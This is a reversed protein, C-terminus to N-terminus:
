LEAGYDMESLHKEQLGEMVSFSIWNKSHKCYFAM